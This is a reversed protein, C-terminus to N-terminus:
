AKLGLIALALAEYAAMLAPSQGIKEKAVADAIDTALKTLKEPNFALPPQEVKAKKTLENYGVFAGMDGSLVAEVIDGITESDKDQAWKPFADPKIEGEKIGIAQSLCVARKRITLGYGEPTKGAKGDKTMKAGFSNCLMASFEDQQIKGTAIAKAAEILPANAITEVAGIADSADLTAVRIAELGNELSVRIAQRAQFERSLAVSAGEVVDVPEAEISPNGLYDGSEVPEAEVAKIQAKSMQKDENHQGVHSLKSVPM